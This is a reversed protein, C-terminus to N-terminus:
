AIVRVPIGATKLYDLIEQRHRGNVGIVFGAMDRAFFCVSEDFARVFAVGDWALRVTNSGGKDLEVGNEDLTLVSTREDALLKKVMSNMSHLFAWCLVIVIAMLVMGVTMMTDAGWFVSMLALAALFAEAPAYHRTKDPSLGWGTVATGDVYLEAREGGPLLGPTVPTLGEMVPVRAAGGERPILWFGLMLLLLIAFAVLTGLALGMPFSSKEPKRDGM